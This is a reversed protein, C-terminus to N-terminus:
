HWASKLESENKGVWAIEPHTYIYSFTSLDYNMEAHKGAIREAVM